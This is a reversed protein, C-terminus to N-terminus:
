KLVNKLPIDPIKKWYFKKTSKIIWNSLKYYYIIIIKKTLNKSDWQLGTLFAWPYGM